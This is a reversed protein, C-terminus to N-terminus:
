CRRRACSWARSARRSCGTASRTPRRPRTAASSSRRAARRRERESRLQKPFARAAQAAVANAADLIPQTSRYNRELTVVAADPFHDPFDLIHEASASRCGYIAQFDDGVATVDRRTTRLARVIDVQLGNVDQYEDVLVHDFAM